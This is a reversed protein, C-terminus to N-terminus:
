LIVRFGQTFKDRGVSVLSWDFIERPEKWARGGWKRASLKQKRLTNGRRMVAASDFSFPASLIERNM